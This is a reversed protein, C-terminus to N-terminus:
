SLYNGAVTSTSYIVESMSGVTELVARGSRVIDSKKFPKTRETTLTDFNKQM